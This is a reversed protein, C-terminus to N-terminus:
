GKAPLLDFAITLRHDDGTFPVTGHWMYSPFLVLMGPEPEVLREAALEPRTRVGPRGFQTWGEREASGPTGKPLDVYFASSLWGEPHVHDTHYGRGRLRVSWAGQMKYGGRIRSRLPDRGKGLASIYSRIPADIAKFFGRIAPAESM